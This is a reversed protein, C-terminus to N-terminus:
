PAPNPALRRPDALSTLAPAKERHVFQLARVPAPFTPSLRSHPEPHSNRSIVPLPSVLLASIISVQYM